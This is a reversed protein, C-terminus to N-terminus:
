LLQRMLSSGDARDQPRGGGLAQGGAHLTLEPMRADALGRVGVPVDLRLAVLSRDLPEISIDVM